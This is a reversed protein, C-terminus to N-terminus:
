CGPSSRGSCGSSPVQPERLGSLGLTLERAGRELQENSLFPLRALPRVVVRLAREGRTVLITAAVAALLVLVVALIAAVRFWSVAPLWPQALFFIAFIGILDFCRELVSTGVIEVPQADSRKALVIVRAVEGARAPLINNYLYGVMMANSITSLAPRRGPAFLSRWRAARAGM